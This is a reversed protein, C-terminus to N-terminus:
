PCPVLLRKSLLLPTGETDSALGSSFPSAAGLVSLGAGAFLVSVGAPVFYLDGHDFAIGSGFHGSQPGQFVAVAVPELHFLGYTLGPVFLADNGIFVQLVDHLIHVEVHVLDKLDFGHGTVVDNGEEGVKLLFDSRGGAEYVEAASRGVDHVGGHRQLHHFGAPDDHVAEVEHEIRQALEDALMLSEDAHAAGVAHM